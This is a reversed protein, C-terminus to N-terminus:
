LVRVWKFRVPNVAKYPKSRIKRRLRKNNKVHLASGKRGMGKTNADFIDETRFVVTHFDTTHKEALGAGTACRRFNGDSGYFGAFDEDYGGMEWFDSVRMLYSNPHPRALSTGNTLRQDPMYYVRPQGDLALIRDAEGAPVLHDMDTMFAWDTRAEQMGLNRAGDQNWPINPIVRYLSVNLQARALWEASLVAKAPFVPSADDVIVFRINNKAHESYVRWEKLHRALMTPNNYYAYVFTCKGIM